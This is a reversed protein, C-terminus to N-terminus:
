KRRRTVKKQSVESMVPLIFGLDIENLISGPEGDEVNYSETEGGDYTVIVSELDKGITVVGKEFTYMKAESAPESDTGIIHVENVPNSPDLLEDLIKKKLAAKSDDNFNVHWEASDASNGVTRKKSNSTGSATTSARPKKSASTLSSSSSSRKSTLSSSKSKDKGAARTVRMTPLPLSPHEIASPAEPITPLPADIAKSSPIEGSSDNSVHTAPAPAPAPSVDDDGLDFIDDKQTKSNKKKKAAAKKLTRAVVLAPNASAATQAHNRSRAKRKKKGTDNTSAKKSYIDFRNHGKPRGSARPQVFISHFASDEDNDKYEASIEIDSVFSLSPEIARLQKGWMKTTYCHPYLLQVDRNVYKQAAIMHLCPFGTTEYKGCHVEDCGIDSSPADASGNTFGVPGICCVCSSMVGAVTMSVSFESDSIQEVSADLPISNVDEQM